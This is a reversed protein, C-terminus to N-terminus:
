FTIMRRTVTQIQLSVLMAFSSEEASALLGNTLTIVLRTTTTMMVMVMMMVIMMVIMMVEGMGVKEKRLLTTCASVKKKFSAGMARERPSGPISVLNRAIRADNVLDKAWDMIDGLEKKDCNSLVDRRLERSELQLIELLSDKKSVASYEKVIDLIGIKLDDVLGSNREDITTEM